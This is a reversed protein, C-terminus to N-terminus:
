NRATFFPFPVHVSSGIRKPPPCDRLLSCYTSTITFVKCSLTNSLIFNKTVGFSAQSAYHSSFKDISLHTMQSAQNFHALRVPCMCEGKRNFLETYTFNKGPTMVHNGAVMLKACFRLGDRSLNSTYLLEDKGWHGWLRHYKKTGLLSNGGRGQM